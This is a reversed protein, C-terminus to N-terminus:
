RVRADPKLAAPEAVALMDDVAVLEARLDATSADAAGVVSAAEAAM